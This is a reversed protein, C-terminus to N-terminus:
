KIIDKSYMGGRTKSDAQPKRKVFGPDMREATEKRISQIRQQQLQQHKVETIISKNCADCFRGRKIPKGCRECGYYIEVGSTSIFRGERIMKVILKERVGTAEAIEKARADPHERVYEAATEEDKLEQEYCKDCIKRGMDMFLAGCRPCNKLTGAM